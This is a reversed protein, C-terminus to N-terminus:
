ILTECCPCKIRINDNNQVIEIEEEEKVWIANNSIEGLVKFVYKTEYFNEQNTKEDWLYYGEQNSSKVTRLYTKKQDAIVVADGAKISEYTAAFLKLRVFNRKHGAYTITNEKMELIDGKVKTVKGKAVLDTVIDGKRIEGKIPLYKAIVKM